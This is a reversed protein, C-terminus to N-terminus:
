YPRERFNRMEVLLFGGHNKEARERKKKESEAGDFQFIGKLGSVAKQKAVPLIAENM